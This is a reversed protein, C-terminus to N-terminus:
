HDGPLTIVHGERVQFAFSQVWSVGLAATRLRKKEGKSPGQRIRRVDRPVGSFFNEELYLFFEWEFTDLRVAPWGIM